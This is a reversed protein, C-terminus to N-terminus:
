FSVTPTSSNYKYIKWTNGKYPLEGYAGAGLTRGKLVEVYLTGPEYKAKNGKRDKHTGDQKTFFRDWLGLVLDATQEIDGAERILSSEIAGEQNALRNFQAGLIIPLGTAIATERLTECIYQLELQKSGYQGEARLLQIYDIFIAIPNAEKKIREITSCLRSSELSCYNVRLKGTNHLEKFFRDKGELFDTNHYNAGTPHKFYGRIYELNREGPKFDKDIYINMLKFRIAESSEEYSFFYVEGEKQTQAINIAMNMMLSTKRHSTRAAIVSLAGSPLKLDQATGIGDMLTYGSHLSDPEGQIIERISQETPIELFKSFETAKDKLKVEKVKSELLELAKSVDGKEQHKKAESLLEKLEAKQEEKERSSTLRDVTLTLSEETIGLEKVAENDIFQKLYIDRDIPQLNTSVIVVEDLLSDKERPTLKGNQEQITGYKNFIERQQYTYERIENDGEVIYIRKEAQQLLAIAKLVEVKDEAGTTYITAEKGTATQIDEIKLFGGKDAIVTSGELTTVEVKIRDTKVQTTTRVEEGKYPEGYGMELLRRYTIKNDENCELLSFVQSPSYAKDTAFETSSSFVRLTRLGTHFNGSTKSDTQGPRLLNVRQGRQHGVERWGKSELLGVIDGRQNYDEFPTLGTSNYTTSSPTPVKPKVEEIESFDKAINFLLDREEPTITPIKSPDLQIYTYGTSPPAVVYGGEGRTEILVEKNEKLALKLNGAITSCRYYIHYGGSITQAIVLDNCLDPLNDEILKWLDNWLTGTTDHKTDVDIVELGGSVAGCIIGIKKPEEKPYLKIGKVTFSTKDKRPIEREIEPRISKFSFIDALEEETLPNKQLSEWSDLAPRKDEKAPVISLGLRLYELATNKIISM